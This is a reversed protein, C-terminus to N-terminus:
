KTVLYLDLDPSCSICLQATDETDLQHPHIMGKWQIRQQYSPNFQHHALLFQDKVGSSQAGRNMGALYLIGYIGINWLYWHIILSLTEKGGFTWNLQQCQPSVFTPVHTCVTRWAIQDLWPKIWIWDPCWTLFVKLLKGILRGAALPSMWRKQLLGM